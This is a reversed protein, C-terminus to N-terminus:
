CRLTRNEIAVPLLLASLGLIRLLNVINTGAINGVALDGSGEM